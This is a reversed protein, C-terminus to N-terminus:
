RAFLRTLTALVLVLSAICVGAELCLCILELTQRKGRRRISQEFVSSGEEPESADMQRCYEEFSVVKPSQHRNARIRYFVTEM